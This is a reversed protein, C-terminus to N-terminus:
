RGASWTFKKLSLYGTAMLMVYPIIYGLIHDAKDYIPTTWNHNQAIGGLTQSLDTPKLNAWDINPTSIMSYDHILFPNGEILIHNIAGSATPVDITKSGSWSEVIIMTTYRFPVFRSIWNMVESNAISDISIFQGSLFTSPFYLLMGFTQVQVESKALSAITFGIAISVIINLVNGYLFGFFGVITGMPQFISTDQWFILAWIMLWLISLIITATFYTVIVITFMAPKVPSAGIRKLLVSKKLELISFPMGQMGTGLASMAIMGAFLYKPDMISGLIGYLMVPFVFSFFPGFFSKIYYRNFLKYVATIGGKRAKDLHLEALRDHHGSWKKILRKIM